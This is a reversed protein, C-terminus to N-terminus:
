SFKFGNRARLGWSFGSGCGSCGPTLVFGIRFFVVSGLLIFFDTFYEGEVLPALGATGLLGGVGSRSIDIRGVDVNSMKSSIM